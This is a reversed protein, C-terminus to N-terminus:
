LNPRSGDSPRCRIRGHRPRGSSRNANAAQVLAAQLEWKKWGPVRASAEWGKQLAEAADAASLRGKEALLRYGEVRWVLTDFFDSAGLEDLIRLAEDPAGARALALAHAASARGIVDRNEEYAAQVAGVRNTQALLARAQLIHMQIRDHQWDGIGRNFAVAQELVSRADDERGQEALHAAVDALVVGRRWNEITRMCALANPVDGSELYARAIRERARAQDKDDRTISDAFRRAYGLADHTADQPAAAPDPGDPALADPSAWAACTSFLLILVVALRKMTGEMMLLIAVPDLGYLATGAAPHFRQRFM